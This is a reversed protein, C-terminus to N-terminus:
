IGDRPLPRAIEILAQALVMLAMIWVALKVIFYGPNATDPFAEFAAVSGWVAPKSATLVFPAASFVVTTGEPRIPQKRLLKRLERWPQLVGAGARGDSASRRRM